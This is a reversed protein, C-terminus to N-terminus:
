IGVKEEILEKKYINGYKSFSGPYIKLKSLIQVLWMPMAGLAKVEMIYLTEDFLHEGHDGLELNMKERRSRINTDFTLRFNTDEIGTYATRDYALFLAPKLDYLNFCYDIEKMIQTNEPLEKTQMYNYVEALPLSVRRKNVVKNHKKKIELFVNSELNPINYSRLRLKEKYKPKEISTRILENNDTDYYINCITYSPYKDPKIYNKVENFVRNYDKENLIYKKEVRKFIQSM